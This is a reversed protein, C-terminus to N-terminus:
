KIDMQEGGSLEIGSVRYMIGEPAQYQHMIGSVWYRIDSLRYWYIVGLVHYVIRSVRYEIGSVRFYLDNAFFSFISLTIAVSYGVGPLLM